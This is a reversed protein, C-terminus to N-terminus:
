ENEWHELAALVGDLSPQPAQAVRTFGLARAAEATQAGMALLPLVAGLPRLAQAAVASGVVVCQAVQLDRRAAGSFEAGQSRYLVARQYAIGRRALGLELTDRSDAGTIHLVTQGPRAPLEAALTRAEARSPVFDPPRGWEALPLATGFGVAAVRVRAWEGDGAAGEGLLRRLARVGQSSTLAAWDAASLAELVEARQGVDVFTLGPWHSARWGLAQARHTLTRGGEGTLTVVVRRAAKGDM